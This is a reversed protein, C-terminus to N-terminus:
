TLGAWWLAGALLLTIFLFGAFRGPRDGQVALFRLTAAWAQGPIGFLRYIVVASASQQQTEALGERYDARVARISPIPDRVIHLHMTLGRLIVRWTAEDIDVPVAEDAPEEIPVGWRKAIRERNRETLSLADHDPQTVSDRAHAHPVGARQTEGVASQNHVADQPAHDPTAM